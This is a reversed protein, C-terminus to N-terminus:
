GIGLDSLFQMFGAYDRLSNLDPDNRMWDFDDYGFMAADRLAKV